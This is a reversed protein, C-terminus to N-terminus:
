FTTYLRTFFISCYSVASTSKEGIAPYALYIGSLSKRSKPAGEPTTLILPMGVDHYSSYGPDKGPTSMEVPMEDILPDAEAGGVAQLITHIVFM